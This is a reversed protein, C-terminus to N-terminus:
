PTKRPPQTRANNAKPSVINVTWELKHNIPAGDIGSQEQISKEHYGHKGLALKCINSNFTGNLGNNFLVREQKALLEGLILSFEPKGDERSWAHLTERRVGLVCALGAISPIVDGTEEYNEIYDRILSVTENTYKTPRGGAM